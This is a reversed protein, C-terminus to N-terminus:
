HTHAGQGRLQELHENDHALIEEGLGAVAIEGFVTHLGRRAWGVDPLQTLYAVVEARAAAFEEVVAEWTLQGYRGLWDVGSPEWWEWRPLEVVAMEHLRPLWVHQDVYSVHGLIVQPPWGEHDAPDHSPHMARVLAPTEGLRQVLEAHDVL